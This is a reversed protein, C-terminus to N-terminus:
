RVLIMFIDVDGYGCLLDFATDNIFTNVVLIYLFLIYCNPTM